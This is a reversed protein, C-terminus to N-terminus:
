INEFALSEPLRPDKVPVLAAGRLAMMTGFVFLGAFGVFCLVSVVVSLPQFPFSVDTMFSSYAPNIHYIDHSSAVIKAVAEAMPQNHLGVLDPIRKIWQSPVCLWYVDVMCACIQWVAWFAIVANKRKVHRSLLGPFPIV